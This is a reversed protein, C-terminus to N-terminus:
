GRGGARRWQSVQSAMGRSSGGTRRGRGVPTRTGRPPSSRRRTRRCCIDPTSPRRYPRARRARTTPALRTFSVPCRNRPPRSTRPRVPPAAEERDPHAIRGRRPRPSRHPASPSCCPPSPTVWLTLPYGAAACSRPTPEPCHRSRPRARAGGLGRSPQTRARRRAAGRAPGQRRSPCRTDPRAASRGGHRRVASRAASTRCDARMSRHIASSSRRSVSCCRPWARRGAATSQRIWCQRSRVSRSVACVPSRQAAALPPPYRGAARM